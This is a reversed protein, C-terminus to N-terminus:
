MYDMAPNGGAAHQWYGNIYKSLSLDLTPYFKNDISVERHALSSACVQLDPTLPTLREAVCVEVCIYLSLMLLWTYALCPLFYCKFYNQWSMTLLWNENSASFNLCSWNTLSPWSEHSSYTYLNHLSALMRIKLKWDTWSTQSSVHWM